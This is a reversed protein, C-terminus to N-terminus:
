STKKLRRRGGVVEQEVANLVPCEDRKGHRRLERECTRLSRDLDKELHRLQRIKERISNLKVRILDLMHSCTDHKLDRVALIERIEQLSFGLTQLRKVFKLRGVTEPTYVRYGSERRVPPPLVREREYFRITDINVGCEKAVAGILYTGSHM